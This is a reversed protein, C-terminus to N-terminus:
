DVSAGSQEMLVKMRTGENAAWASFEDASKTTSVDNGSVALREQLSPDALVKASAAALKAVAEKPLGAPGFLGFWFTYDYGKVGSEDIPPLKPLGKSKELSTVALMKDRGTQALPLVSPPTGFTLDVDGYALAAVAPAGGKFPVHTM